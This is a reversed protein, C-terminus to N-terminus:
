TNRESSNGVKVRISGSIVNVTMPKDMLEVFWHPEATLVSQNVTVCLRTETTLAARDMFVLKQPVPVKLLNLFQMYKQCFM